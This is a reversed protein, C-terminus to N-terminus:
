IIKKLDYSGLNIENFVGPMPEKQLQIAAQKNHVECFAQNFEDATIREGHEIYHLLDENSKNLRISISEHDKYIWLVGDETIKYFSYGYKIHLPTEIEISSVVEKVTKTKTITM